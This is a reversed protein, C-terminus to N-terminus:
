KSHALVAPLRRRSFFAAKPILLDAPVRSGPEAAYTLSRSVYSGCDTEASVQVDLPCRRLRDPLPGMIQGMGALIERRRRQWQAM